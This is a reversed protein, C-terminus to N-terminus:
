IAPSKAWARKLAVASTGLLLLALVNLVLVGGPLKIVAALSVGSKVSYSWTNSYPYYSAVQLAYYLLGGCVGVAYRRLSLAGSIIGLISALPWAGPATALSVALGLLGNAVLMWAISREFQPSLIWRRMMARALERCESELRM